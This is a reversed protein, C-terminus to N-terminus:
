ENNCYGCDSVAAFQSYLVVLHFRHIVCYALCLVVHNLQFKDPLYRIRFKASEDVIKVNRISGDQMKLIGSISSINLHVLVAESEVYLERGFKWRV